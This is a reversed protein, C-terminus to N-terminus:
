SEYISFLKKIKKQEKLRELEKMVLEIDTENKLEAKITIHDSEFNEDYDINVAKLGSGQIEKKLELAKKSLNPNRIKLLRNCADKIGSQEILKYFEPTEVKSLEERSNLDFLTELFLKLTSNSPESLALAKELMRIIREPAYDLMSLISYSPQNVAIFHQISLPLKLINKHSNTMLASRELLNIERYTKNVKLWWSLQDDQGKIKIARDIIVKPNNLGALRKAGDILFITGDTEAALAPFPLPNPYLKYLPQLAKLPGWEIKQAEILEM